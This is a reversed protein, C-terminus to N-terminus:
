QKHRNPENGEGVLLRNQFQARRSEDGEVFFVFSQFHPPAIHGIGRAQLHQTQACQACYIAHGTLKKCEGAAIM